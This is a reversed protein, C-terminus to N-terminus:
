NKIFKKMKVILYLILIRKQHYYNVKPYKGMMPVMRNILINKLDGKNDWQSQYCYIDGSYFSYM